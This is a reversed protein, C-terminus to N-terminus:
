QYRLKRGIRLLTKSSIRNLKCLKSVTTHYKRALKGLNDGKRVTCYKAKRLEILYEFNKRCIVLTDCKAVSNEFDFFTSPNFPAGHYRTEFHLHSGTSRGSNGGLGIVDGGNVKQNPEVLVASLHGYITEIGNMHRLVVVNGYGRRDYKTVRVLGDFAARITDGVQVKIDVGYHYMRRRPGFNSTIYNKFPNVFSLNKLSDYLMVIITDTMKSPDFSGTNIMKNDWRSLDMGPNEELLNDIFNQFSEEQLEIPSLSDVPFKNNISDVDQANSFQIAGIFALTLCLLKIRM